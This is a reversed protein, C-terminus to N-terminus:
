KCLFTESDFAATSGFVTATRVPFWHRVSALPPRASSASVFISASSTFASTYGVWCENFWTEVSRTELGGAWPGRGKAGPGHGGAWPGQGMHKYKIYKKFHIYM